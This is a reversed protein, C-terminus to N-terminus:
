ETKNKKRNARVIFVVAVIVIIGLIVGGVILGTNAGKAPKTVTTTTQSEPGGLVTNVGGLYGEVFNGLNFSM